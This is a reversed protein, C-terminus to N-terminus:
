RRCAFPVGPQPLRYVHQPIIHSALPKRQNPIPDAGDQVDGQASWCEAGAPLTCCASVTLCEAGAPLTCCSSITLLCTSCRESGAPLTCCSSVTLHCTSINLYPASWSEACAPLTCCTSITLRCASTDLYPANWCESGASLTCRPSVTLREASIDLYPIGSAQPIDIYTGKVDGCHLFASESDGSTESNLNGTYPHRKQILISTKSNIRATRTHRHELGGVHRSSVVRIRKYWSQLMHMRSLLDPPAPDLSLM